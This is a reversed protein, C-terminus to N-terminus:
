RVHQEATDTLQNMVPPFLHRLFSCFVVLLGRLVESVGSPVVSLRGLMMLTSMVLLRRVVRMGRSPVDNMGAPVGLLCHLSVGLVVAFFLDSHLEQL